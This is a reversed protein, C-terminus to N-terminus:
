TLEAKWGEPTTLWTGVKRAPTLRHANVQTPHCTVSHSGMHCTIDQPESTHVHLAINDVNLKVVLTATNWRLSYMIMTDAIVLRLQGCLGSTPRSCLLWSSWESHFLRTNRQSRGASQSDTELLLCAFLEKSGLLTKLIWFYICFQTRDDTQTTQLRCVTMCFFLMLASCWFRPGKTCSAPRDFRAQTKLDDLIHCTSTDFVVLIDSSSIDSAM